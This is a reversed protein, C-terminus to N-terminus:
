WVFLIYTNNKTTGIISKSCCKIYPIQIIKFKYWLTSMHLCWSLNLQDIDLLKTCSCIYGEYWGMPWIPGLPDTKLTKRLSWWFRLEEIKHSQWGILQQQTKKKMEPLTRLNWALIVHTYGFKHQAGTPQNAKPFTNKWFSTKKWNCLLHLFQNEYSQFGLNNNVVTQWTQCHHSRRLITM